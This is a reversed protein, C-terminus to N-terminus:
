KNKNMTDLSDMLEHIDEIIKNEIVRIEKQVDIAQCTYSCDVYYDLEQYLKQLKESEKIRKWFENQKLENTSM